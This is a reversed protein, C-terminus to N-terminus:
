TAGVEGKTLHPDFVYIHRKVCTLLIVSHISASYCVRAYVHYNAFIGAQM